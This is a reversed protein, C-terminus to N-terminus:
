GADSLVEVVKGVETNGGKPKGRYQFVVHGATGIVSIGSGIIVLHIGAETGILFVFLQNFFGMCATDLNYHIHNEVMTAYFM